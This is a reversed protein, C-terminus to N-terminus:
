ESESREQARIKILEAASSAIVGLVLYGTFSEVCAILRGIGIPRMDGYGLTTFTVVSLYCATWFDHTTVPEPGTTDTFGISRYISAFALLLLGVNVAAFAIDWRRNAEGAFLKQLRATLLWLFAAAFSVGFVSVVIDHPVGGPLFQAAAVGLGGFAIFCFYALLVGAATVARKM